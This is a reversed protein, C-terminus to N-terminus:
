LHLIHRRSVDPSAQLQFILSFVGWSHNALRNKKQLGFLQEDRGCKM